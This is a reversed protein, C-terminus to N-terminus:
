RDFATLRLHIRCSFGSKVVKQGVKQGAKQGVKQGAKQGTKQGAGNEAAGGGRKMKGRRGTARTRM